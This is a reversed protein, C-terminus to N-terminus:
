MFIQVLNHASKILELGSMGGDLVTDFVGVSNSILKLAEDLLLNDDVIVEHALLFKKLLLVWLQGFRCLFEKSIFVVIFEL